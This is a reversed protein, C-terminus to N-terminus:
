MTGATRQDGEPHPLLSNEAAGTLHTSTRPQYFEIVGRLFERQGDSHQRDDRIPRCSQCGAAEVSTRFTTVELTPIPVPQGRPLV